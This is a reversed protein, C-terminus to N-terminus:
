NVPALRRFQDCYAQGIESALTDTHEGFGATLVGDVGRRSGAVLTMWARAARESVGLSQLKADKGALWHRRSPGASLLELIRATGAWAIAEPVGQEVLLLVLSRLTGDFDDVGFVPDEERFPPPEQPRISELTNEAAVLVTRLSDQDEKLCAKGTLHVWMAWPDRSELIISVERQATEWALTLTDWPDHACGWSQRRSITAGFREKGQNEVLTALKWIAPPSWNAAVCEELLTRLDDDPANVQAQTLPDPRSKAPEDKPIGEPHAILQVRIGRFPRGPNMGSPRRILGRSEADTLADRVARATRGTTDTLHRLPAIAVGRADALLALEAIVLKATPTLGDLSRAWATWFGSM